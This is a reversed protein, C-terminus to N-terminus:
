KILRQKCNSFLFNTGTTKLSHIDSTLEPGSIKSYALSLSSTSKAKMNIFYGQAASSPALFKASAVKVKTGYEIYSTPQVSDNYRYELDVNGNTKVIVRMLRNNMGTISISKDHETCSINLLSFTGGQTSAFTTASFLTCILLTSAIATITKM